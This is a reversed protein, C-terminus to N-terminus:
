KSLLSIQDLQMIRMVLQAALYTTSNVRHLKWHVMKPVKAYVTRILGGMLILRM